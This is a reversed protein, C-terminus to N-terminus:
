FRAVFRAQVQLYQKWYINDKNIQSTCSKRKRGLIKLEKMEKLYSQLNEKIGCLIGDNIYLLLWPESQTLPRISVLSARSVRTTGSQTSFLVVTLSTRSIHQHCNRSGIKDKLM